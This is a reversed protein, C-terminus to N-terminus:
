VKKFTGKVYLKEDEDEETSEIVLKTNDLSVVKVKEEKGEVGPATTLIKSAADYRYEVTTYLRWTNNEWEYAKMKNDSGFEFRVYDAVDLDEFETTGPNVNFNLRQGTEKDELYGQVNTMEWTGVISNTSGNEKDDDDSSCSVFAVSLMAVMMMTLMSWFYNKKNM